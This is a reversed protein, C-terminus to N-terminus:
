RSASDTAVVAVAAAIALGRSHPLFGVAWQGPRPCVGSKAWFAVHKYRHPQLRQQCESDLGRIWNGNRLACPRDELGPVGATNCHQAGCHWLRRAEEMCLVGALRCCGAVM